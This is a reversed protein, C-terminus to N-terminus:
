ADEIPRIATAIATALSGNRAMVRQPTTPDLAARRPGPRVIVAFEFEGGCMSADRVGAM